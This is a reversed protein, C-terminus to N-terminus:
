ILLDYVEEASGRVIDDQTVTTSIDFTGIFVRNWDEDRDYLDWVLLLEFSDPWLSPPKDIEFGQGSIWGNYMQWGGNGDVWLQASEESFSSGQTYIEANETGLPEGDLYLTMLCRITEGPFYIGDVECEIDARRTSTQVHLQKLKVTVGNITQEGSLTAVLEDNRGDAALRLTEDCWAIQEEDNDPLTVEGTRPNIRFAIRIKQSEFTHTVGDGVGFSHVASEGIIAVLVTEPLDNISTYWPLLELATRTSPYDGQVSKGAETHEDYVTNLLTYVYSYGDVYLDYSANVGADYWRVEAITGLLVGDKSAAADVLTFVGQTINLETADDPQVSLTEQAAANQTEIRALGEEILRGREAEIEDYPIKYVFDFTVSGVVGGDLDDQDDFDYLTCVLTMPTGDTIEQDDIRFWIEYEADPAMSDAQAIAPMVRGTEDAKAYAPYSKGGVTLVYDFDYLRSSDGTKADAANFAIHMEPPDDGPWCSAGKLEFSIGDVEATGGIAGYFTTGAISEDAYREALARRDDVAQESQSYDKAKQTSSWYIAYTACATLVLLIAAILILLARRKASMHHKGKSGYSKENAHRATPESIESNTEQEKEMSTYEADMKELIGNLMAEKRDNPLTIKNLSTVIRKSKM